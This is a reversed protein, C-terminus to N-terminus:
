KLLVAIFVLRVQGSFNTRVFHSVWHLHVAASASCRGNRRRSSSANGPMSSSLVSGADTITTRARDPAGVSGQLIDHVSITESLSILSRHFASATTSLM